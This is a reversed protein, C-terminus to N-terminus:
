EFVVKCKGELASILQLSPNRQAIESPNIGSFLRFDKILHMQDAYGYEYAIKIWPTALAAEKHTYANTFRTIRAFLKPSMGLLNLSQRQLQRISLGARDAVHEVPINGSEKVLENIAPYFSTACYRHMTKLLFAEILERLAATTVAAALRESLERIEVPWILSADVCENVLQEMPLSLWPMLGGAKFVVGIVKRYLGLDVKYNSTRPGILFHPPYSVLGRDAIEALLPDSNITFYLSSKVSWPYMHVSPFESEPFYCDMMTISEIWPQLLPHVALPVYPLM